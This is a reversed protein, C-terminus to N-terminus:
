LQSKTARLVYRVSGFAVFRLLAGELVMVIGKTWPVESVIERIM